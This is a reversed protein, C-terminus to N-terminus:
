RQQNSGSNDHGIMDVDYVRSQPRVPRYPVNGRGSKWPFGLADLQKIYNNSLKGLRRQRRQANVWSYLPRHKTDTPWTKNETLYQVLRSFTVHWAQAYLEERTVERVREMADTNGSGELNGSRPYHAVGAVTGTWPVGLKNLKEFRHHPLKQAERRQRQVGIWNYLPKNKKSTPWTKHENLYEVLVSFTEDWLQERSKKRREAPDSGAPRNDSSTGTLVGDNDQVAVEKGSSTSTTTSSLGVADTADTPNTPVHPVPPRMPTTSSPAKKRKSEMGMTTETLRNTLSEQPKTMQAVPIQRAIQRHCCSSDQKGIKVAASLLVSDSHPIRNPLRVM